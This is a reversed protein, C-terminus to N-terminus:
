GENVRSTDVKFRSGNRVKSGIDEKLDAWYVEVPQCVCLTFIAEGGEEEAKGGGLAQPSM